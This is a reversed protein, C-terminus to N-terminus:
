GTLRDYVKQAWQENQEVNMHNALDIDFKFGPQPTKGGWAFMLMSEDIFMGTQLKLDCPEGSLEFPKMSWMQIIKKDQAKPLEKQDFWQLAYKYALEDKRYDQLYVYYMDAAKWLNQDPGPYPVAGKALPVSPHYLRYPETWCFVLTDPLSNSQLLKEYEMFTNWISAGGRGWHTVESKLKDALLVCWSDKNQSDCFSDGFYGITNM